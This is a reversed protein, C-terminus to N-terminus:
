LCLSTEDWSGHQLDLPRSEETVLSLPLSSRMRSYRSLFIGWLTM